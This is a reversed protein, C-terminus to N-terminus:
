AGAAVVLVVPGVVVTAVVASLVVDLVTAAAGGSPNSTTTPSSAPVEPSPTSCVDSRLDGRHTAGRSPAPAPRPPPRTKAAAPITVPDSTRAEQLVSSTISRADIYSARRAGSTKRATPRTSRSSRSGAAAQRM